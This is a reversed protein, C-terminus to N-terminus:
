KGRAPLLGAEKKLFYDLEHLFIGKGKTRVLERLAPIGRKEFMKAPGVTLLRKIPFRAKGERAWISPTGAKKIRTVFAHPLTKRGGQKLVKVSVPKRKRIPIGAQLPPEKPRPAFKFLSIPGGISRIVVFQWGAKGGKARILKIAGKLDKLKINYVSCIKKKAQSTGQSGIKNLASIEAKRAIHPLKKLKREVEEFGEIKDITIM